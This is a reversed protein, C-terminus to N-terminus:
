NGVNEAAWIDAGIGIDTLRSLGRWMVTNGPPPDSARALYGGLRALKTLYFSLTGPRCRRSGADAVLKDLLDIEAATLALTPAADPAARNLMTLWFVRWSLICFVAASESWTPWRNRLSNSLPRADKQRTIFV